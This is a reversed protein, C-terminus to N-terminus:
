WVEDNSKVMQLTPTKPELRADGYAKLYVIQGNKVVAVSASPVGSEELAKAAIGDIKAKVEPSLETQAQISLTPFIATTLLVTFLFTLARSVITNQNHM